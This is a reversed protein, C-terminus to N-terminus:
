VDAVRATSRRGGAGAEEMENAYFHSVINMVCVELRGVFEDEPVHIGRHAVEM